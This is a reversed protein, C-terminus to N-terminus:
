GEVSSKKQKENYKVAQRVRDGANKRNEQYEQPTHERAIKPFSWGQDRLRKWKRVDEETYGQKGPKRGRFGRFLVRVLKEIEKKTMRSENTNEAAVQFRRLSVIFEKITPVLVIDVLRKSEVWKEDPNVDNLIFPVLLDEVWRRFSKVQDSSFLRRKGRAKLDACVYDGVDNVIFDLVDLFLSFNHLTLLPAVTANWRRVESRIEDDTVPM